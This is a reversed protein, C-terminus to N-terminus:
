PQPKEETSYGAELQKLQIEREFTRHRATELLGVGILFM